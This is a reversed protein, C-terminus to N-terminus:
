RNEAILSAWPGCGTGGGPVGGTGGGSGARGGIVSGGPGMGM